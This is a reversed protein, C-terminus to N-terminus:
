RAQWIISIPLIRGPVQYHAWLNLDGGYKIKTIIPYSYHKGFYPCFNSFPHLKSKNILTQFYSFNRLKVM